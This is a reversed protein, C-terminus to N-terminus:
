PGAFKLRDYHPYRERFAREEQATMLPPPRRDQGMRLGRQDAQMDINEGTGRYEDDNHDDSEIGAMECFEAFDAPSLHERLWQTIDSEQDRAGRRRGRVPMIADQALADTPKPPQDYSCLLSGDNRMYIRPGGPKGLEQMPVTFSKRM